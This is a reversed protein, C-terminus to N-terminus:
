RGGLAVRAADLQKTAATFRAALDAIEAGVLPANGARLAENVSPLVINAYGNNEDAAYILNRFWPRTRLGQPRTLAREVGLLARNAAARASASPSAALAADRALAFARASREMADISRALPAVTASFKRATLASDIAPLYRKMTRAYEVYDYPVVDANALRLLMSAAIRAATAHYAFTTDGFRSMWAFSDYM